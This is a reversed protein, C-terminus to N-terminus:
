LCAEVPLYFNVGSKTQESWYGYRVNATAPNPGSGAPYCYYYYAQGGLTPDGTGVANPANIPDVPIPGGYQSTLFSMWPATASSDWGGGDAGGYSTTSRVGGNDVQYLLLAKKILAMDQARRADRSKQQVNSFAVITIAALVGIIVIVILLEVITFGKQDRAWAKYM